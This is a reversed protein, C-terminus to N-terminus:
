RANFKRYVPPNERLSFRQFKYLNMCFHGRTKPDNAARPWDNAFEYLRCVETPKELGLLHLNAARGMPM